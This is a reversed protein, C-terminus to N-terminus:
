PNPTLEKIMKQGVVSIKMLHDFKHDHIILCVMVDSICYEQGFHMIQILDYSFLLVLEFQSVNKWITLTMFYSVRWM